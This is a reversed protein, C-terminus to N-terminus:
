GMKWHACGAAILLFNHFRRRGVLRAIKTRVVIGAMLEIGVESETGVASEIGWQWGIGVRM